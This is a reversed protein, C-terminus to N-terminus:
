RLLSMNVIIKNNSKYEVIAKKNLWTFYRDHIM